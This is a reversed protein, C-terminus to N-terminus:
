NMESADSSDPSSSPEAAPEKNTGDATQQQQKEQQGEQFGRAFASALERALQVLTVGLARTLHWASTAGERTLLVAALKMLVNAATALGVSLLLSCTGGAALQVAFSVPSPTLFLVACWCLLWFLWGGSSAYGSWHAYVLALWVIWLLVRRMLGPQEGLLLATQLKSLLMFSGTIALASTSLAITTASPFFMAAVLFGSSWSSLAYYVALLGSLGLMLRRLFRKARRTDGQAVSTNAAATFMSANKNWGGSGGDLWLCFAPLLLALFLLMWYRQRHAWCGQDLVILASLFLDTRCRLLVPNTPDDFPRITWAKLQLFGQGVRRWFPSLSAAEQPKDTLKAAAAAAAVATAGLAIMVPYRMWWSWGSWDWIWLLLLSLLRLHFSHRELSLLVHREIIGLVAHLILNMNAADAPAMEGGLESLSKAKGEAYVADVFVCRAATMLEANEQLEELKKAEIHLADVGAAQLAEAADPGLTGRALAQGLEDAEVNMLTAKESRSLDSMWYLLPDERGDFLV